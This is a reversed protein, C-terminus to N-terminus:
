RAPKRAVAMLSSGIPLNMTRLLTADIAVAASLLANIPAAPVRLDADSAVSTRGRARDLLRSALTLPFTTMNTFTMRTVEFGNSVLLQRLRAPTYRRQEMTLASHSGRLLDLAAANVIAVGGPKLVRCM